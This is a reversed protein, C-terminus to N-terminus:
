IKNKLFIYFAGSGGEDNSADKIDTIMSMLDENNSIFEPISYKLIGLDKSVYPDNEVNSHIGKGTIIILKKVKENYADSIFDVIEKNAQDLTYGHLDISRVKESNKKIIKIDKNVVKEDSSIFDEWDKKDKESISSNM